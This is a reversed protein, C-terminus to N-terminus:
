SKENTSMREGVYRGRIMDYHRLVEAVLQVQSESWKLRAGITRLTANEDKRLKTWLTAALRATNDVGARTSCMIGFGDYYQILLRGAEDVVGDRGTWEIGKDLDMYDAQPKSLGEHDVLWASQRTVLRGKRIVSHGDITVSPRWVVLDEHIHHANVDGGFPQNAGIAVHVTGYAKEDRLTVGVLKRVGSDVGIGLECLFDPEIDGLAYARRIREKLLLAAPHDSPTIEHVRGARFEIIIRDGTAFVYGPISGDVAIAGTATGKCPAAFVEGSPVNDFAQPRVIGSSVTPPREWSALTMRLMCERGDDLSSDIMVDRGLLLPLVLIDCRKQVADYDTKTLDGIMDITIGPMHAVRCEQGRGADLLAMRFGAGESSKSVANIMAQSAEIASILSVPLTDLSSYLSQDATPVVILVARVREARAATLILRGAPYTLEDAVVVLNQDAVLRLNRSILLRAGTSLRQDQTTRM